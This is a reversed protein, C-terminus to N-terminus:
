YKSFESEICQIALILPANKMRVKQMKGVLPQLFHLFRDRILQVDFAVTGSNKQHWRCKPM